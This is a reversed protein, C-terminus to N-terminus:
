ALKTIQLYKQYINNAYWLKLNGRVFGWKWTTNHLFYTKCWIISGTCAHILLSVPVHYLANQLTSSSGGRQKLGGQMFSVSSALMTAHNGAIPM